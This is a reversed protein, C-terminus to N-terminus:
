VREPVSRAPETREIFCSNYHPDQNSVVYERPSTVVCVKAEDRQVTFAMSILIVGCGLWALLVMTFAKERGKRVVILSVLAPGLGKGFEDFFNFLGFAM